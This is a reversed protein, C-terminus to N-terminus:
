SNCTRKIALGRTRGRRNAPRRSLEAIKEKVAGYVRALDLRKMRAAVGDSVDEPPEIMMGPILDSGIMVGPMPLTRGEKIEAEVRKIGLSAVLRVVGGVPEPRAGEDRWRAGAAIALCQTLTYARHRGHGAFADDPGVFGAAVWRDLTTMPIGAIECVDGSTLRIPMYM